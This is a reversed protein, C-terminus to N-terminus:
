LSAANGRRSASLFASKISYGGRWLAKRKSGQYDFSAVTWGADEIHMRLPIAPMISSSIRAHGTEEM